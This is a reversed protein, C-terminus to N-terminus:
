EVAPKQDEYSNDFPPGHWWAVISKRLGKTVPRVRHFVDSQFFVATGVKAPITIYKNKESIGERQYGWLELDFEGGEYESELFITMSVKRVSLADENPWLKGVRGCQDIHWNYYDGVGYQTYQLPESGGSIDLYWRSKNNAKLALDNCVKLADPDKIWNSQSKRYYVNNPNDNKYGEIRDYNFKFLDQDISKNIIDLDEESIDLIEYPSGYRM